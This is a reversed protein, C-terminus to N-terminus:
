SDSVLSSTKGAEGQRGIRRGTHNVPGSGQGISYASKIAELVYAKALLTGLSLGRGLALQCALATSFACGTGHTNRSELRNSRFMQLPRNRESLLDLAPDLHGGTIVVTRAGMEHLRRAACKMHEPSQVQMGTLLAAEDVNPTVVDVIPFLREVLVRLGSEDLLAAGSSSNIVPDLVVNSLKASSLFEAVAGAIEQNALMGIHVASVKVDRTLEDLSDTLLQQEVPAVRQVGATSQVTLATIASVGYCGHAAITKIDATVGAGSSPDFGAISLVIPPPEPMYRIYGLFLTRRLVPISKTRLAM